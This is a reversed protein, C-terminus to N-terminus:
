LIYIKIIYKWLNWIKVKLGQGNNKLIKEQFKNKDKKIIKLLFIKKKINTFKIFKIIKINKQHRSTIKSLIIPTWEKSILVFKFIPIIKNIKLSIINKKPHNQAKKWLLSVGLSLNPEIQGGKERIEISGKWIGNKFVQIKNVLPKDIVQAWWKNNIFSFLNKKKINVKIKPNIKM